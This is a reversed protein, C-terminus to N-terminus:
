AACGADIWLFLVDRCISVYAFISTSAHICFRQADFFGMPEFNYVTFSNLIIELVLNICKPGAFCISAKKEFPFGAAKQHLLDIKRQQILGHILYKSLDNFFLTLGTFKLFYTQFNVEFCNVIVVYISNTMKM